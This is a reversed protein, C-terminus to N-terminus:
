SNPLRPGTAVFSLPIPLGFYLVRYLLVAVVATETKVGCYAAVGVMSAELVGVGGPVFSLLTAMAGLGFVALVLEFSVVEGVAAFSFYLAFIVAFWDLLIFAATLFIGWRDEFAESLLAGVEASIKKDIGLRIELKHVLRVALLSIGSKQYVVLAAFLGTLACPMTLALATAGKWDLGIAMLAFSTATIALSTGNLAFTFLTAAVIAESWHKKPGSLM